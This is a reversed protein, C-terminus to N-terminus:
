GVDVIVDTTTITIEGAYACMCKSSADLAPFNRVLVTPSGPMWPTTVPICPMPTLVGLAAATAAIVMPNAPSMCMGFTPINAMPVCDMINAAQPGQAMVTPVLVVLPTPAIGQSCKLLSGMNVLKGAM